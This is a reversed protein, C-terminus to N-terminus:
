PNLQIGIIPYPPSAVLTLSSTPFSSPLAGYALSATWMAYNPTSPSIAAVGGIPILANTTYSKITSTSNYDIVLWDQGPNVQQNVAIRYTGITTSVSGADLILNGPLGNVTSYIGLEVRGTCQGECDAEINRVHADQAIYIPLAYLTNTANVSNTAAVGNSYGAFYYQTVTSTGLIQPMMFPIYSLLTDTSITAVGTGSAVVLSQATWPTTSALGSGGSTSTVYGLAAINTNLTSTTLTITSSATGTAISLIGGAYINYTGSSSNLTSIYTTPITTNTFANSGLATTTATGGSSSPIVGTLSITTTAGSVTTTVNGTATVHYAITGSAGNFSSVLATSSALCNTTTCVPVGAQTITGTANLTGGVKLTSSVVANGNGDDLENNFTDVENTDYVTFATHGRGNSSQLSNLVGFIPSGANATSGGIGLGHYYGGLAICGAPAPLSDTLGYITNAGSDYVGACTNAGNQFVDFAGTTSSATGVTFYGTGNNDLTNFNSASTNTAPTMSFGVHNVSGDNWSLEFPFEVSSTGRKNDFWGSAVNPNTGTPYYETDWDVFSRSGDPFNEAQSLACEWSSSTVATSTTSVPPCNQLVINYPVPSTGPITGTTDNIELYNGDNKLSYTFTGSANAYPLTISAASIGASFTQLASFTYPTSTSFSGGATSTVFGLPNSYPYYTGSTANQWTGLWNGTTTSLFLTTTAPFFYTLGTSSSLWGSNYVVGLSSSTITVAGSSGNVAAVYVTPITTLPALNTSSALFDTHMYGQWTGLWNGTSTSLCSSGFVGTSSNYTLCGAASLSNLVSQITTTTFGSPNGALPYFLATGSAPTLYVGPIVSYTTTAGLVTSTITTGDGAIHFSLAATGNISTTAFPVVGLSSSTIAIAGSSGNVSSVYVTSSTLYDTKSYTAISGLGLNQRAATTSAVDSLNNAVLLAGNLSTLCSACSFQGTSSNYALPSVASLLQLVQATSLSVKITSTAPNTISIFTGDGVISFSSTAASVPYITITSTTQAPVNIAVIGSASSVSCNGTCLLYAPTYTGSGTGIPITGSAPTQSTGTGGVATPYPAALADVAWLLGVVVFVSIIIAAVTRLNIKIHITM